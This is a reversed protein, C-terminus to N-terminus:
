GVLFKQGKGERDVVRLPSKYPLQMSECVRQKVYDGLPLQTSECSEWTAKM